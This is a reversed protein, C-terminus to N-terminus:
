QLRTLAILYEDYIEDFHDEEYKKIKNKTSRKKKSNRSKPIKREQWPCLRKNEQIPRQYVKFDNQMNNNIRYIDDSNEYLHPYLYKLSSQKIGAYFNRLFPESFIERPSKSVFNRTKTTLYKTNLFDLATDAENISM